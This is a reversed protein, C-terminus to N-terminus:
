DDLSCCPLSRNSIEDLTKLPFKHGMGKEEAGLGMEVLRGAGDLQEAGDLREAEVPRESLRTLDASARGTATYLGTVLLLLGGVLPLAPRVKPALRIAGVMLSTLAPLTGLWFALMVALSSAVTGTGGAFILFLYLWGCPLLTTLGGVAFARLPPPLRHITPRWKVLWGAILGGSVPGGSVPGGSASATTTAAESGDSRDSRTVLPRVSRAIRALAFVVMTVGAIRAAASQIGVTNGSLTLVAGAIGVLVGGTLYTALRGLHYFSIRTTIAGASLNSGAGSAWLAFPGCMGVCHLSGMVSAVAVASLLEWSSIMGAGTM